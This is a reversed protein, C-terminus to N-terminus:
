PAAPPASPAATASRKRPPPAGLAAVPRPGCQIAYGNAATGPTCNELAKSPRLGDPLRDGMAAALTVRVRAQCHELPEDKRIFPSCQSREWGYPDALAHAPLVPLPAAVAVEEVPAPPDDSWVVGPAAQQLVLAFLLATTM